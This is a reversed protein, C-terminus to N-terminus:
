ILKVKSLDDLSAKSDTEQFGVSHPSSFINTSFILEMNAAIGKTQCKVSLGASLVTTLLVM